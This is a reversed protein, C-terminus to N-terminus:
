IKLEDLIKEIYDIDSEVAWKHTKNKLANCGERYKVAIHFLKQYEKLGFTEWDEPCPLFDNYSKTLQRCEESRVGEDVASVMRMLIMDRANFMRIRIRALINKLEDNEYM